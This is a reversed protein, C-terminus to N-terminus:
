SQRCIPWVTTGGCGDSYTNEQDCYWGEGYEEVCGADDTCPMPGYVAMPVCVDAGADPEGADVSADPDAADANADPDAADASADPSGADASADPEGADVSADPSGADAVTGQECVPWTTTGGCGDSFTNERNCYWGEGYEEACAADDTCPAPGYITLPVCVDAGADPVGTDVAADIDADQGASGSDVIPVGADAMSGADAPAGGPADPMAGGDGETEATGADPAATAGGTGTAGGTSTERASGDPSAKSGQGATAEAGEEGLQRGPTGCAAM